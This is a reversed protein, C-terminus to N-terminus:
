QARPTMTHFRSCVKDLDCSTREVVGLERGDPLAWERWIRGQKQGEDDEKAKGKRKSKGQQMGGGGLGRVDKRTLKIGESWVGIVGV